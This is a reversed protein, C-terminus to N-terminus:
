RRGPRTDETRRADGLLWGEKRGTRTVHRRPPLSPEEWFNERLRTDLGTWADGSGALEAPAGGGGLETRLGGDQGVGALVRPM